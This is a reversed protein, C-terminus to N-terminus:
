SYLPAVLTTQQDQRCALQFRSQRSRASNQGRRATSTGCGPPPSQNLPNPRCPTSGVNKLSRASCRPFSRKCCISVSKKWSWAQGTRVFRPHRDGKLALSISILGTNVVDGASGILHRFVPRLVFDASPPCISRRRQLLHLMRDLSNATTGATRLSSCKKAVLPRHSQLSALRDDAYGSKM